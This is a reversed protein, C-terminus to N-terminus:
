SCRNSATASSAMPARLRNAPKGRKLPLFLLREGTLGIHFAPATIGYLKGTTYAALREGPNLRAEIAQRVGREKVNENETVSSIM